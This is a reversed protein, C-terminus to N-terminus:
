ILKYRIEFTDPSIQIIDYGAMEESYITKNFETILKEPIKITVCEVNEDNLLVNVKNMEDMLSAKFAATVRLSNLEEKQRAKRTKEVINRNKLVESVRSM